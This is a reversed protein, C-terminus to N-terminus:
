ECIEFMGIFQASKYKEDIEDLSVDVEAEAVFYGRESFDTAYDDIEKELEYPINKYGVIKPCDNDMDMVICKICHVYKRMKNFIEIQNETNLKEGM